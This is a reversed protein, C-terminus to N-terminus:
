MGLGGYSHSQSITELRVNKSKRFEVSSWCQRDTSFFGQVESAEFVDQKDRFRMGLMEYLRVSKQFYIQSTEM